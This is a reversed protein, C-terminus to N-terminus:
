SFNSMTSSPFPTLVVYFNDLTQLTPITIQDHRSSFKFQTLEAYFSSPSQLEFTFLASSFLIKCGVCQVVDLSTFDLPNGVHDTGVSGQQQEEGGGGVQDGRGRLAEIHVDLVARPRHQRCVGPPPHQQCAYPVISASSEGGVPAGMLTDGQTGPLGRTGVPRPLAARTLQHRAGRPGLQRPRAGDGAHRPRRAHRGGHQTVQGCTDARTWM